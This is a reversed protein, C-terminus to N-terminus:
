NGSKKRTIFQERSRVVLGERTVKVKVSAQKGGTTRDSKPYYGISYFECLESAIKSYADALNGTSSAEYLRGGTRDALQQMYYAAKEYDEKSTGEPNATGTIVGSATDKITSLIVDSTSKPATPGGVPPVIVPRGSNGHNKMDQVDQYTDYEIPYILADLEIPDSINNVESARRSTTDVGDSFLIIAKRGAVSRTLSNMVLDVAEYISTGTDIKTSRIARYVEKRDNTPKCLVHVEEDFSVVAVKDVPRLQDIFAIAANQIEELKFKTSYSMDLMLVVTFPEQESSFYSIEQEFGNEFVHFEDQRLGAVFRGKKDMVRVPVNVLQTDVKIVDGEVSSPTAQANTDPLPTPRPKPTAIPAPKASKKQDGGQVGRGSQASVSLVGAVLMLYVIIRSLFVRSNYSVCKSASM